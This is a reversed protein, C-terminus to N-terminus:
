FAKPVSTQLTWPKTESNSYLVAPIHSMILESFKDWCKAVCSVQLMYNYASAITCDILYETTKKLYNVSRFGNHLKMQTNAMFVAQAPCESHNRSDPQFTNQSFHRLCLDSLSGNQSIWPHVSAPDQVDITPQFCLHVHTRMATELLGGHHPWSVLVLESWYRTTITCVIVQPYIHWISNWWWWCCWGWPPNSLGMLLPHPTPQSHQGM